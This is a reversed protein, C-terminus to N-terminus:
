SSEMDRHIWAKAATWGRKVTAPSVGLALATEEVTMGGFFRCEVIRCHRPSDAELRRLSADLRVLADAREVPLQAHGPLLEDIKDMTVREWSGGRKQAGRRRGYDVLIQRMARSAVALLHARGEWQAHSRGALRLYVENVLATTSMTHDGRWQGRRDRAIARLEDYLLAVAEDLADRDGASAREILETVGRASTGESM